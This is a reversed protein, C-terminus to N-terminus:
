PRLSRDFRVYQPLLFIMYILFSIYMLMVVYLLLLLAILIVSRYSYGVCSSYAICDHIYLVSLLRTIFVGAWVYWKAGGRLWSSPAEVALLIM